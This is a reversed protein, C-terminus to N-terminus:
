KAPEAGRECTSAKSAHHSVPHPLRGVGCFFSEPRAGAVPPLREAKAQPNGENPPVGEHLARLGRSLTCAHNGLHRGKEVRKTDRALMGHGKGHALGGVEKLVGHQSRQGHGRKPKRGTPSPGRAPQARNCDGENRHYVLCDLVENGSTLGRRAVDKDVEATDSRTRKNSQESGSAPCVPPRHTSRRTWLSAHWRRQGLKRM